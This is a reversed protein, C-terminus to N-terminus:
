GLFVEERLWGIRVGLKEWRVRGVGLLWVKDGVRLFIIGVVRLFSGM